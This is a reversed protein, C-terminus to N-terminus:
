PVSREILSRRAKIHNAVSVPQARRLREAMQLPLSILKDVHNSVVYVPPVAVLIYIYLDTIASVLDGHGLKSPKYTTKSIYSDQWGIPQSPRKTIRTFLKGLTM